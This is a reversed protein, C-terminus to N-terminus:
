GGTMAPPFRTCVDGTYVAGCETDCARFDGAQKTTAGLLCGDFDLLAQAAAQSKADTLCLSTTASIECTLETAKNVLTHKDAACKLIGTCDANCADLKPKCAGCLCSWCSDSVSAWRATSCDGNFADVPRPGSDVVPTTADPTGQNGADSQAGQKASGSATDSSCASAAAAALAAVVLASSARSFTMM